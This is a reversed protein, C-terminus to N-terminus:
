VTCAKFLYRSLSTRVWHGLRSFLDTSHSFQSRSEEANYNFCQEILSQQKDTLSNPIKVNVTVLHSGRGGTGENHIGKGSIRKVSGPQTGASIKMVVEGHITPITATGGLMATALDVTVTSLIDDGRRTWGAANTPDVKLHVHLDGRKSSATDFHGMRRVALM